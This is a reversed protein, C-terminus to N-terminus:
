WDGGSRDVLSAEGGAMRSPSAAIYDAARDSLAPSAPWLIDSKTPPWIRRLDSVSEDQPGIDVPATTGVVEIFLHGIGISTFHTENTSNGPKPPYLSGVHHYIALNRWKVGAYHAIWISWGPPPELNAYLWLRHLDPVAIGDPHVYEACMVTKAIWTALIQQDFTSVRHAWGQILPM